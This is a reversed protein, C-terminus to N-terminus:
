LDLYKRIYKIIGDWNGNKWFEEIQACEMNSLCMKGDKRQADLYHMLNVPNCEKQKQEAIKEFEEDRVYCLLGNYPNQNIGIM